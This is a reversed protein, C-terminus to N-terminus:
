GALVSSSDRRLYSYVAESRIGIERALAVWHVGRCLLDRCPRRITALLVGRCQHDTRSRKQPQATAVAAKVKAAQSLAENSSAALASYEACATRYAAAAEEMTFDVGTKAAQNALRTGTTWAALTNLGLLLVNLARIGLDHGNLELVLHPEAAKMDVNKMLTELNLLSIRATVLDAKKSEMVGNAIRASKKEEVAEAKARPFHLPKPAAAEEIAATQTNKIAATM